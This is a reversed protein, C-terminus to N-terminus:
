KVIFFGVVDVLVHGVVDVDVDLFVDIPSTSTSTSTATSPKPLVHNHDPPKSPDAVMELVHVKVHVQVHLHDNVAKAQYRTLVFEGHALRNARRCKGATRM